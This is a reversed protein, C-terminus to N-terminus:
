DRGTGASVYSFPDSIMRLSPDHSRRRAVDFEFLEPGARSGSRGM